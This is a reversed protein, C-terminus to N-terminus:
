VFVFFLPNPITYPAIANLKFWPFHAGCHCQYLLLLLLWFFIPTQSRHLPNRCEIQVLPLPGWLSVPLYYHTAPLYYYVHAPLYYYVKKKQSLARHRNTALSVSECWVCVCVCVCMGTFAVRALKQTHTQRDTHTLTHTHTNTHTHTYHQTSFTHTHIYM